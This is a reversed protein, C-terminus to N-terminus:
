VDAKRALAPVASHLRAAADARGEGFGLDCFPLPFVFLEQGFDRGGCELDPM